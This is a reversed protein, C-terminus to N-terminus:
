PRFEADNDAGSLPQLHISVINKFHISISFKKALLRWCLLSGRRRKLKLWALRNGAATHAVELSRALIM